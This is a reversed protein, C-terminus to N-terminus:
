SLRNVYLKSCTIFLSRFFLLQIEIRFGQSFTEFLNRLRLAITAQKWVQSDMLLLCESGHFTIHWHFLIFRSCIVRTVVGGSVQQDYVREVLENLDLTIREEFKSDAIPTRSWTSSNSSSSNSGRPGAVAGTGAHDKIRELLYEQSKTGTTVKQWSCIQVTSRRNGTNHAFYYCMITEYFM